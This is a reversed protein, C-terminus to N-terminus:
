LTDTKDERVLIAPTCVQDTWAPTGPDTSSFVDSCVSPVNRYDESFADSLSLDSVIQEDGKLLKM